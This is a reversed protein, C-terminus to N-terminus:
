EEEHEEGRRKMSRGREEEHEGKGEEEYEESGQHPSPILSDRRRKM